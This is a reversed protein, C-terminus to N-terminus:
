RGLAKPYYEVTNGLVNQVRARREAFEQERERHKALQVKQLALFEHVFRSGDIYCWLGEKSQIDKEPIATGFRDILYAVQVVFFILFFVYSDWM